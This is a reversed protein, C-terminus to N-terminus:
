VAWNNLQILWLGLHVRRQQRTLCADFHREGLVREMLGALQGWGMFVRGLRLVARAKISFIGAILISPRLGQSQNSQQVLWLGFVAYVTDHM